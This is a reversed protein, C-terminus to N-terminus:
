KSISINIYAELCIHALRLSCYVQTEDISTGSRVINKIGNYTGM